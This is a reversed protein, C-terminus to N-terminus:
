IKYAIGTYRLGPLSKNYYHLPCITSTKLILTKSTLNIGIIFRQLLPDSPCLRGCAKPQKNKSSGFIWSKSHM